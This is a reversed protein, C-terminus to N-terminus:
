GAKTAHTLWGVELPNSVAGPMPMFSAIHGSSAADRVLTM